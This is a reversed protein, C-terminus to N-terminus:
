SNRPSGLGERARSIADRPLYSATICYQQACDERDLYSILLKNSRLDASRLVHSAYIARPGTQAIKRPLGLKLSHITTKLDTV